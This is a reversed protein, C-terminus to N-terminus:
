LCSRELVSEIRGTKRMYRIADLAETALGAAERATRARGIGCKLRIGMGDTVSDLLSSVGDRDVGNSIVMFNDGGLFFTLSGKAMFAESLKAYLKSILSSMQYPTLKSSVDSTSGDVDLHMIQVTDRESDDGDRGYVRFKTDLSSSSRARHAELHADYPTEGRGISVSIELEYAASLRKLVELHDEISMGNTVAFMEDFRNFFVLGNKKSFLMQLDGYLKSQLMQLVHERDSGLTLTWPGYNEIRILTIQIM